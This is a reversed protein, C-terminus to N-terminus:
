SAFPEGVRDARSDTHTAVCALPSSYARVVRLQTRHLRFLLSESESSRALDGHSLLDIESGQPSEGPARMLRGGLLPVITLLEDGEGSNSVAIPMVEGTIMGLDGHVAEAAHVFYSPTGTSALTAAIKRAIHGSKGIGSVVLRGPSALILEVARRFGDDVRAALAAM